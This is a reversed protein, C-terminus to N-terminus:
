EGGGVNLAGPHGAPDCVQRCSRPSNELVLVDNLLKLQDRSCTRRSRGELGRRWDLGGGAGLGNYVRRVASGTRLGEWM